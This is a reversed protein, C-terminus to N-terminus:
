GCPRRSTGPDSAGRSGEDGGERTELTRLLADLSANLRVDAPSSAPVEYIEALGRGLRRLTYPSLGLPTAHSSTM